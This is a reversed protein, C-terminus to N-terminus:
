EQTVCADRETAPLAEFMALFLAFTERAQLLAARLQEPEALAADLLSQFDKWAHSPRHSGLNFFRHQHAPLRKALQRAIVQGGLLSGEIVYLAGWAQKADEPARQHVPTESVGELSDLDYELAPLRSEYKWGESALKCLWSAHRNEWAMHLHFYGRLLQAYSSVNMTDDFLERMAVTAEVREHEVRTQERLVVHPLRATTDTKMCGGPPLWGYVVGHWPPAASQHNSLFASGDIYAHGEQM